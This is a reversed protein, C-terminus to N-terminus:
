LHIKIQYIRDFAKEWDLFTIACLSKGAVAKDLIRRICVLPQSTSRGKRFAYQPNSIDHDISASLRIQMLGVFITYILNLLSIPRNNKQLKPDGKKFISAINADLKSGPISGNYM